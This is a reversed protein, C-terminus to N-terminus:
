VYHGVQRSSVGKENSESLVGKITLFAGQRDKSRQKRAHKRYARIGLWLSVAALTACACAIGTIVMPTIPNSISNDATSGRSFLQPFPAMIDFFNIKEAKVSSFHAYFLTSPIL